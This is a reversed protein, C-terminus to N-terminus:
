FPPNQRKISLIKRFDTLSKQNDYETKSVVEKVTLFPRILQVPLKLIEIMGIRNKHM